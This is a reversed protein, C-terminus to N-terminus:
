KVEVVVPAYTDGAAAQALYPRVKTGIPDEEVEAFMDALGVITVMATDGTALSAAVPDGNADLVIKADAGVLSAAWADQLSVVFRDGSKLQIGAIQDKAGSAPAGPPEPFQYLPDVDPELVLVMPNASGTAPPAELYGTTPNYVGISNLKFGPPAATDISWARGQGAQLPHVGILLAPRAAFKKAM